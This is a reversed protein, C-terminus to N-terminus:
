SRSNQLAAEALLAYLAEAYREWSLHREVTARARAGMAAAADGDALLDLIAREFAEADGPPVLRCNDGDALRYGTDIASTRSVVVPKGCAMAQLLVTTAGSYVNERVPLAVVRATALRQRMATFSIDTEVEVNAPVRELAQVHDRSAIIRFARESHREAVKVLLEFDRQPDAGVSLVDADPPHNTPHFHETDVGFPVFVVRGGGLWARLEAAEGTGYAVVAAAGRLVNAYAKVARRDRLTALRPLLGISVYVLPRRLLRLATLGLVPIGVTDVTSLVVDAANAQRRSAVVSAYDGGYGGARSVAPGLAGSVARAWRPPRRELNHRVCLGRDLLQDLGFLLYREPSGPPEALAERRQSSDRYFSFVSFSADVPVASV